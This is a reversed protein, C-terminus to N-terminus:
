ATGAVGAKLRVGQAACWLPMSVGLFRSLRLQRPRMKGVETDGYKQPSVGFSSRYSPEFRTEGCNWDHTLLGSVTAQLQPLAAESAADLKALLAQWAAIRVSNKPETRLKAVVSEAEANMEAARARSVAQPAELEPEGPEVLVLRPRGLATPQADAM